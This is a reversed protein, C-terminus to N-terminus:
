QRNRVSNNGASNKNYRYINKMPIIVYTVSPYAKEDAINM